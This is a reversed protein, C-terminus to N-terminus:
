KESDVIAATKDPYLKLLHEGFFCQQLNFDAPLDKSKKLKNHLWDIEGNKHKLKRDTEPNYQM